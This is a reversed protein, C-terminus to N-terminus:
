RGLRNSTEALARGTAALAAAADGQALRLLALGPQAGHGARSAARYSEEAEAFAGRLRHAGAEHYLALCVVASAPGAACPERARRAEALAADWRGERQLIEARYTRCEGSYAVMDPQRGCWESLALTWERTRDLAQIERCAGIVSCYVVGTVHPSLED